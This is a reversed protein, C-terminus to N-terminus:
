ADVLSQKAASLPPTIPGGPSKRRALLMPVDIRLNYGDDDTTWHADLQLEDFVATAPDVSTVPQIASPSGPATWAPYAAEPDVLTIQYDIADVTAITIDEGDDGIARGLVTFGGGENVTAQLSLPM